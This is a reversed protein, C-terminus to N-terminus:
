MEFVTGQRISKGTWRRVTLDRHDVIHDLICECIGQERRVDLAMVAWHVVSSEPINKRCLQDHPNHLTGQELVCESVLREKQECCFSAKECM